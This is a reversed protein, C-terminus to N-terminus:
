FLSRFFMNVQAEENKILVLRPATPMMAQVQCNTKIPKQNMEKPYAKNRETELDTSIQMVVNVSCQSVYNESM